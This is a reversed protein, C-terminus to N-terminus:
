LTEKWCTEDIPGDLFEAIRRMQGPMDRKLNAFHVFLINPLYRVSTEIM